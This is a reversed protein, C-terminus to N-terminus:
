NVGRGDQEAGVRGEHEAGLGPAGLDGPVEELEGALVGYGVTVGVGLRRDAAGGALVLVESRHQGVGPLGILVGGPARPLAM